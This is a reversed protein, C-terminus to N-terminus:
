VYFGKKRKVKTLFKDFWKNIKEPAPDNDYIRCQVVNYNEPVLEVTCLPVDPQKTERVFLIISNGKRIRDAYGSNYVCHKLAEGETKLDDPKTPVLVKYKEDEYSFIKAYESVVKGFERKKKKNDLEKVRAICVDHCYKLDKPTKVKTDKVNMRLRLAAEIYDRYDAVFYSPNTIYRKQTLFYRYLKESSIFRHDNKGNILACMFKISDKNLVTQWDRMQKFARLEEIDLNNEFVFKLEQYNNLGTIGYITKKDLELGYGKSRALNDLCDELIRFLKSKVLCELQPEKLYKSLYHFPNLQLNSELLEFASYKFVSNDFLKKLNYPYTRIKAEEARWCGFGFGRARGPGSLLRNSMSSYHFAFYDGELSLHDRQEERITIEVAIRPKENECYKTERSVYYLIQVFGSEFRELRAVVRSCHQQHSYIAYQLRVNYGCAPCAIYKGQRPKILPIGEAGCSCFGLYDNKARKEYYMYKYDFSWDKVWDKFDDPYNIKQDLCRFAIQKKTPKRM